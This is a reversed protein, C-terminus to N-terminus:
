DNNYRECEELAFLHPDQTQKPKALCLLCPVTRKFYKINYWKSVLLEFTQVLIRFFQFTNFCHLLSLSPSLLSYLFPVKSPQNGGRVSVRLMNHYPSLEICATEGGMGKGNVGELNLLIM